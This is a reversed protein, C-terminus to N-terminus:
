EGPEYDFAGIVGPFVVPSESGDAAVASVGFLYNDIVVNELPTRRARSARTRCSSRGSGSRARDDAAVLRPLRRAPPEPGRGAPGVVADDLAPRGGRGVGGVAAGPRGGPGGAHGRQAGDAQRRLPLRRVRRHRRLPAALRGPADGHPPGPAPPRLARADGHDARGPLRREHVAHPPRGRGFRDLRYVMMVDLNRVYQDAMRDVVRALNGAPGTSRAAPSGGSARRATPRPRGRPRRSSAPAVHQRVGRRHRVLQRDHRQEPRGRHEVGRDRATEAMIQGGFLGQEEGSLGAYVITGPFSYRSLVRAAEIAGAM